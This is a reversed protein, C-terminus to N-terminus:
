KAAEDVAAKQTAGIRYLEGFNIPVYTNM